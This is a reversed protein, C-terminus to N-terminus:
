AQSKRYSEAEWNVIFDTMEQTMHLPGGFSRSYVAIKVSDCFLEAATDAAKETDGLAYFGIDRVIVIRAAGETIGDIDEPRELYLPYAGCYVIHDPTFSHMLPEAAERSEAFDLMEGFGCYRVCPMNLREKLRTQFALDNRNVPSFDPRVLVALELKEMTDSLMDDIEETTDGAIFIGHNQLLLIRERRGTRRLHEDIKKACLKALTYGPKCLPIWLADEGFIAKAATEGQVSCTLGNILAPHLHLVYKKPFLNHLLAEVSPRRSDGIISRAAMVDAIFAAEREDDAEPYQKELTKKLLVRSVPVFGAEDISGLRTGSCKVHLTDETKMSTNGGGALVLEPNAGYKRSMSVLNKLDIM